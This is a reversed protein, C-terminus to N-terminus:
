SADGRRLDPGEITVWAARALRSEIRADPYRKSWQQRSLNTTIVTLLHQRSELLGHLAGRMARILWDGQETGVDDLVLAECSSLLERQEEAHVSSSNWASAVPTALRVLGGGRRNALWWGCATSKGVGTGSELVLLPHTATGRKVWRAMLRAAPNGDPDFDGSVIDDRVKPDLSAGSARLRADREARAVAREQAQAQRQWQAHEADSERREIATQCRQLVAQLSDSLADM